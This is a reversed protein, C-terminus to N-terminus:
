VVRKCLALSSSYLFTDQDMRGTATTLKARLLNWAFPQADADCQLRTIRYIKKRNGVKKCRTIFLM